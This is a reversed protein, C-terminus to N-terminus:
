NALILILIRNTSLLFSWCLFLFFKPIGLTKHRQINEQLKFDQMCAHAYNHINRNRIM